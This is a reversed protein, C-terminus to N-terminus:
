VMGMELGMILLFIKGLIEQTQVKIFQLIIETEMLIGLKVNEKGRLLM